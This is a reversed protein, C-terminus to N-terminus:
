NAKILKDLTERFKESNWNASGVKEVVLAGNKDIVYTTPLTKGLMPQPPQTLMKYTSFSFRKQKLYNTVTEQEENSVFLFQVKGQYDEYLDQFSPMEAICPPCWTAWFNVIIVEGRFNSFEVRKGTSNQLVWNYDALKARDEEATVGPSFSILKNVFIQIPKRTQPIIMALIIVGLILNSWQNKFLKM